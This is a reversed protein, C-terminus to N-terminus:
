LQPSNAPALGPRKPGAHNDAAEQRM